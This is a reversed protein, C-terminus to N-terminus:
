CGRALVRTRCTKEASLLSACVGSGWGPNGAMPAAFVPQVSAVSASGSLTPVRAGHDAGNYRQVETASTRTSACRIYTCAFMDSLRLRTKM